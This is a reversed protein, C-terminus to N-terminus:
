AAPRYTPYDTYGEAGPSYFSNPNPEALPWGNAIRAVLDPNALFARAFAVAQAEGRALAAEASDAAYGGALIVAHRTRGVLTSVGDFGTRVFHVYALPLENAADLLAGYTALPDSEEIDNFTGGPSLRIGVRGPGAVAVMARLAEVAFRARNAPTGGYQDTRLNANTSLFQMPLYGNAAHLEVADFGAALANETARAYDALVRQIEAQSLETPVPLDAMGASDTYMKGKAAVASPAWVPLAIPRNAPHAIRGVHMLQLAMVAGKAHVADTVARWAAVQAETHIGPTRAYGQGDASPQTGEAILLGASGRQSYYEAVLPSPVGNSDARCRTMPAMVFRNQLTMAGLTTPQFLHPYAHTM